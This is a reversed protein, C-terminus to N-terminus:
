YINDKINLFLIINLGHKTLINYCFLCLFIYVHKILSCKFMSIFISINRFYNQLSIKNKFSFLYYFM